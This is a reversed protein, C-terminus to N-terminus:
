SYSRWYNSPLAGSRKDAGTYLEAEVVLPVNKRKNVAKVLMETDNTRNWSIDTSKEDVYFGESRV